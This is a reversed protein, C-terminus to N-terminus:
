NLPAKKSRRKAHIYNGVAEPLPLCRNCIWVMDRDSVQILLTALVHPCFFHPEECRICLVSLLNRAHTSWEECAEEGCSYFDTGPAIEVVRFEGAM